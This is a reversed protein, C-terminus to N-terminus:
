ETIFDKIVKFFHTESIQDDRIFKKNKIMVANSSGPAHEQGLAGILSKDKYASTYNDDEVIDVIKDFHASGRLIEKLLTDMNGESGNEQTTLFFLWVPVDNGFEETFYRHEKKLIFLNKELTRLRKIEIEEKKLNLQLQSPKNLFDQLFPKGVKDIDKDSDTQLFISFPIKVNDGLRAKRFISNALYTLADDIKTKNGNGGDYCWVIVFINKTSDFYFLPALDFLIGDENYLKGTIRNDYFTKLDIKNSGFYEPNRQIFDKIRKPDVFVFGEILKIMRHVFSTEHSGEILILKINM